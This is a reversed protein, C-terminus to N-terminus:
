PREELFAWALYQEFADLWTIADTDEAFAPTLLVGSWPEPPVRAPDIALPEPELAHLARWAPAGCHAHGAVAISCLHVSPPGDAYISATMCRGSCRATFSYGSVAPVPVAQAPDGACAEAILPWLRATLAPDVEDRRSDRIHGTNLTVHRVCFPILM